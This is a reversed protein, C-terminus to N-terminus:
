EAAELYILAAHQAAPTGDPVGAKKQAQGCSQSLMFSREPERIEPLVM